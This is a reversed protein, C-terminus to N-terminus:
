AQLTTIAWCFGSLQRAIAVAVVTSRKHRQLRLRQWVRYLRQQAKWSVALVPAPQGAQRRKLADSHRPPHRYNWAAETLLRRAHRSGTKTIAGQQRTEGSSYERPVLGLYAALQSARDFRAFDGIEVALGVATLTDIGRLCRLRSITAALPSVPWFQEIQADLTQRRIVLADVAGVYDTLTTQTADQALTITSLWRRHRDTWTSHPDEFRVGYRLLLKSVRHRACMLDRRLAERARVLDRLAEEEPGPVRVAALGDIMLLRVLREADRRDTKVRDGAPREIKSPAAVVCGVGAQELARALEFGTPGAEYAVRAPAPLGACFAAVVETDGSLRTTSLEGSIADIRVAVVRSAHVDLGAWSRVQAM